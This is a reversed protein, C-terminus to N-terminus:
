AGIEEMLAAAVPILAGINGTSAAVTIAAGLAVAKTAIAIAHKINKIKKAATQMSSSTKGLLDIDKEILKVKALVSRANLDCAANLLTWQYNELGSRQKETLEDWHEYRYKGLITSLDHFGRSLQFIEEASLPRSM